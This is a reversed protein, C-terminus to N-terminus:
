TICGSRCFCKAIVKILMFTHNDNVAMKLMHNDLDTFVKFRDLNGLVPISIADCLGKCHTLNGGTSVLM